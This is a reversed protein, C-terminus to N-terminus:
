IIKKIKLYGLGVYISHSFKIFRATSIKLKVPTIVTAYNSPITGVNKWKTKDISTEITAGSGNGSYWLSSNGNWGALEIDEFTWEGNLEIIIMGPSKACIGTDLNKDELDEIKQTGATLGNHIYPNSIEFDVFEVDKFRDELYTCIEGIEYYEAEIKLEELEEKNFRKYNLKNYRIFDLLFPFYKPSRDFFIEERFDFRASIIMKYFLTDKVKLLTETKSAFKKGGVNFKVLEYEKNMLEQVRSDLRDWKEERVELDRMQEELQTEINELRSKLSNLDSKLM